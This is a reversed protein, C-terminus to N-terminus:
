GEGVGKRKTGTGARRKRETDGGGGGGGGGWEARGESFKNLGSRGSKRRPLSSLKYRMYVTAPLDAM